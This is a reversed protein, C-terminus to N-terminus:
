HKWVDMRLMGSNVNLGATGTGNYLVAMGTDAAIIQGTLIMGSLVQTFGVAVTDGLAAGTVGLSVTTQAAAALSPPDWGVTASLHKAIPSAAGGSGIQWGGTGKPLFVASVNTGSGTAFALVPSGSSDANFQWYNAPTQPGTVAVWAPQVVGDTGLVIRETGKAYIDLGINAASGTALLGPHVGTLEATLDFWAAVGSSPGTFRGWTNTVSSTDSGFIVYSSGKALLQLADDTLASTRMVLMGVLIAGSPVALTSGLSAIAATFNGGQLNLDGSGPITTWAPM